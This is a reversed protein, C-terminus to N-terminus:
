HRRCSVLSTKIKDTYKAAGSMFHHLRSIDRSYGLLNCLLFLVFIACAFFWWWWDDGVMVLSFHM